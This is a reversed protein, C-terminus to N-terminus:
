KRVDPSGNNSIRGAPTRCDCRHMRGYKYATGVLASLKGAALTLGAAAALLARNRLAVRVRPPKAGDDRYM